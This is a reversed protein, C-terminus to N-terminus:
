YLDAIVKSRQPARTLLGDGDNTALIIGHAQCNSAEGLIKAVVQDPADCARADIHCSRILGCRRDVYMAFIGGPSHAIVSSELTTIVNKASRLEVRRLWAADATEPAVSSSEALRRIA